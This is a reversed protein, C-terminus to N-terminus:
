ASTLEMVFLSLLATRSFLTDVLVFEDDTHELEGIPGLSDITPIGEASTYNGDSGGGFYKEKVEMDLYAAAKKLREFLAINGETKEIPPRYMVKTLEARTGQVYETDAIKQMGDILTHGDANFRCRIDIEMFVHEPIINSRTGGKIVGVSISKGRSYDTLGHLAIIKQAAEEIAHIGDLPNAGAHSPKGRIDMNFIGGGQREIVVYNGPIGPEVVLVMDNKRCEEIIHRESTASGREEDTNLLVTLNGFDDYGVYELAKLTYILSVIGAKMDCVGPGYARGGKITFPRKAATGKEFVTDMHGLFMINGKGSGKKKALIHPAYQDNELMTVAFGLEMLQNKVVNGVAKVCDIDYSGSDMNVLKELLELMSKKEDNIFENIKDKM